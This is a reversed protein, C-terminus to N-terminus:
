KTNIKALMDRHLKIKPLAKTAANKIDADQTSNIVGELESIKSEHGSLMQSVWMKDFDAGTSNMDSMASTNDPVRANKKSALAKLDKNMATHDNIITTAAHKVESNKSKQTAMKAMAIEMNNDQINKSIFGTDSM